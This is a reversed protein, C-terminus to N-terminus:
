SSSDKGKVRRCARRLVVIQRGFQSCGDCMALHFKLGIRERLKLDADMQRSLLETAKKCSIM